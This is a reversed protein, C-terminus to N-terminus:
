ETEVARRQLLVNNGLIPALVMCGDPNGYNHVAVQALAGEGAGHEPLAVGSGLGVVGCSDYSIWQTFRLLLVKWASM